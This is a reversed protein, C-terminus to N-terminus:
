DSGPGGENDDEFPANADRLMLLERLRQRNARFTAFDEEEQTRISPTVQKGDEDFLYAPLTEANGGRLPVTMTNRYGDGMHWQYPVLHRSEMHNALDAQTRFRPRNSDPSAGCPGWRCEESAGHVVRVHRRLTEMNHLEARCGAWACEFAIFHPDLHTFILHPSPRAAKPPRGRKRKLVYSPAEKEKHRDPRAGAPKAGSGPRRGGSSSHPKIRSGMPRGRKPTPPTEARQPAAADIELHATAPEVVAGSPVHKQRQQVARPGIDSTVLGDDGEDQNRSLSRPSPGLLVEVRSSSRPSAQLQQLTLRSHGKKAPSTTPSSQARLEDGVSALEDDDGDSDLIVQRGYFQGTKLRSLWSKM